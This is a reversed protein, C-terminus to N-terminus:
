STNIDHLIGEYLRRKYVERIKEMFFVDFLVSWRHLVDLAAPQHSSLQRSGDTWALCLSNRPWRFGAFLKAFVLLSELAKIPSELAKPTKKHSELYAKQPKLDKFYALIYGQVRLWDGTM